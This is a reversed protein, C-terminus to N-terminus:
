VIENNVTPEPFSERETLGCDACAMRKPRYDTGVGLNVAHGCELIATSCEPWLDSSPGNNPRTEFREVLRRPNKTM